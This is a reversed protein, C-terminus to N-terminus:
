GAKARKAKLRQATKEVGVIFRSHKGRAVEEVGHIAPSISPLSGILLSAAPRLHPAPKSGHRGGPFRRQMM